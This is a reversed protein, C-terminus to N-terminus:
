PLALFPLLYNIHKHELIHDFLYQFFVKEVYDRFVSWDSQPSSEISIVSNICVDGMATCIERNIGHCDLISIINM